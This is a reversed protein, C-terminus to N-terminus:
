RASAYLLSAKPRWTWPYLCIPLSTSYYSIHQILGVFFNESFLHSHLASYCSNQHKVSCVRLSLHSAPHPSEAQGWGIGKAKRKLLWGDQMKGVEGFECIWELEPVKVYAMNETQIIREGARFHSNLPGHLLYIEFKFHEVLGIYSMKVEFLIVTYIQM